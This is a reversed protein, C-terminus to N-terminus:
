FPIFESCNVGRLRHEHHLHAECAACRGAPLNDPAGCSTADCVTCPLGKAPNPASMRILLRGAIMGTGLEVLDDIAANLLPTHETDLTLAQVGGGDYHLVFHGTRDPQVLARALGAQPPNSSQLLERLASAAATQRRAVLIETARARITALETDSRDELSRLDAEALATFTAGLPPMSLDM